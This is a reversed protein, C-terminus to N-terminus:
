KNLFELTEELWQERMDPRELDHDGGKVMIMNEFEIDVSEAPVKDDKDGHLHLINPADAILDTYDKNINELCYASSLYSTKSMKDERQCDALFLEESLFSNFGGWGVKMDSGMKKMSSIVFWYRLLDKQNFAPAMLIIKDFAIENFLTATVCASLSHVVVSVKQYAKIKKVEELGKRFDGSMRSVTVDKFEGDSLGCGAYDFRLSDIGLLALEDALVKFKKETTASREFGGAMIVIKEAKDADVFIGRLTNGDNNKFEILKTEPM